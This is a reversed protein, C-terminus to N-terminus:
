KVPLSDKVVVSIFLQFWVSDKALIWRLMLEEISHVLPGMSGVFASSEEFVL